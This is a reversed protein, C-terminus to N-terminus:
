RGGDFDCGGRAQNPADNQDTVTVTITIAGTAIGLDANDAPVDGSPDTVTVTFGYQIGDATTDRDTATEYNLKAGVTIRGTAQDIKFLSADDGGLAHTLIDSSDTDAGRVTGIVTGVAAHEAVSFSTPTGVPIQPVNNATRVGAIPHAMRAYAKDPDPGTGDNYSAVVRLLKGAEDATAAYTATAAGTGAARIWHDENELEPRSVKPVYWLFTATVPDQDPDTLTATVSSDVDGGARIQLRNLTLTPDEEIDEVNVTVTITADQAIELSGPARVETAIVMVEYSNDAPTGAGMPSEFSPSNRFALVGGAITFDEADDGDLSWIINEGEPDMAMITVVPDTGEEDYDCTFADESGNVAECPDGPSSIAPRENEDTVMITVMTSDELGFPDRATVEVVYTTQTGEFDLETGKKVTIQGSSPGIEFAGMDAGGSIRYSLEDGEDPDTARVPAGVNDGEEAVESVERTIGSEFVPAQNVEPAARVANDTVKMETRTRENVDPTTTDDEEASANDVYTVTVELYMGEDGDVGENESTVPDDDVSMVPTYTASTAGQIPLFGSTSSSRGWQWNVESVRMDPDTLMATIAEGVAPQTTSFSVTGKEDVNDVMIVIPLSSSAGENDTVVINVHYMNNGDADGPSEYNPEEKFMLDFITDTDSGGFDATNTLNFLGGDPGEANM